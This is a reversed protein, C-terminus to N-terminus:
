GKKKLSIAIPLTKEVNIFTDSARGDENGHVNGRLSDLQRENTQLIQIGIKMANLAVQLEDTRKDFYVHQVNKNVGTFEFADSM